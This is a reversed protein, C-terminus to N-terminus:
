GMMHGCLYQVPARTSARRSPRLAMAASISGSDRSIAVYVETTGDKTAGWAIAVFRGDAAVSPYANTRGPVGLEIRTERQPPTNVQQATAIREVTSIEGLVVASIVTALLLRPRMPMKM